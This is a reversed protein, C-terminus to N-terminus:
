GAQPPPEDADRSWVLHARSADLLYVRWFPWADRAAIGAAIETAKDTLARPPIAIIGLGWGALQRGKDEAIEALREAVEDAIERRPWFTLRAPWRSRAATTINMGDAWVPLRAPDIEIRVGPGQQAAELAVAVVLAADAAAREATRRGGPALHALRVPDYVILGFLRVEPRAAEIAVEAMQRVERAGAAAKGRLESWFGTVDIAVEHGDVLMAGDPRTRRGLIRPDDPQYEPFWLDRVDHGEVELEHIVWEIAVRELDRQPDM